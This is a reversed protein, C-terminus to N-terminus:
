RALTYTAKISISRRIISSGFSYDVGSATLGPRKFVKGINQDYEALLALRDWRLGIAGTLTPVFRKYGAANNHFRSKNDRKEAYGVFWDEQFGAQVFPKFVTNRLMYWRLATGLSARHHRERQLWVSATYSCDCLTNTPVDSIVYQVQNVLSFSSFRREGLLSLGVAHNSEFSTKSPTYAFSGSPTYRRTYFDKGYKLGFGFAWEGSNQAASVTVSVAVLVFVCYSRIIAEKM